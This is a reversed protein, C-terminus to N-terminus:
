QHNENNSEQALLADLATELAIRQESENFEDAIDDGNPILGSANASALQAHLESRTIESEWRDINSQIDLTNTCHVISGANLAESTSQRARLMLLQQKLTALKQASNDIDVQLKESMNHYQQQRHLLSTRNSECHQSRRVCLLAKERDKAACSIARQQWSKTEQQMQIIQEDLKNAEQKVQRLVVKADVIKKQMDNVTVQVIADHNEMESVVQEIRASLTSSIRKIISM